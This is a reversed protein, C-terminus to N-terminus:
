LFIVLAFFTSFMFAMLAYIVGSVLVLTTQNVSCFASTRHGVTNISINNDINPFALLNFASIYTRWYIQTWHNFVYSYIFTCGVSYIIHSIFSCLVWKKERNDSVFHTLFHEDIKCNEMGQINRITITNNIYWRFACICYYVNKIIMLVRRCTEASM